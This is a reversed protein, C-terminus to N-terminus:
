AAEYVPVKLIGLEFARRILGATNRVQLKKTLNKRHSIVTHNSIYLQSAIEAITAELAIMTLIQYERKTIKNM